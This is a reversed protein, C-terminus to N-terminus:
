YECTVGMMTHDKFLLSLHVQEPLSEANCCYVKCQKITACMAEPIPWALDEM